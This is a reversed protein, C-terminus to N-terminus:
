QEDAMVMPVSLEVETMAHVRYLNPQAREVYTVTPVRWTDGPGIDSVWFQRRGDGDLDAFVEDLPNEAGEVTFASGARAVIRLGVSRDENYLWRGQHQGGDVRGLKALTLTGAADDTAEVYGMQVLMLTDGFGVTTQGDAVAVDVITYSTRQLENGLIMVRDLYAEPVPLEGDLVIENAEHDVSVVLGAPSPPTRLVFDGCRLETGNVLCARAVEGDALTVVAFEGTASLEADGADWACAASADLSSHILDEGRSGSGDGAHRIALGVAHEVATLAGLRRVGQVRAPGQHPESVTIYTSSLDSAESEDAPLSNRALVYQLTPPHSPKLEAEADALIIEGASREPMFMTLALDTEPDRWTASWAGDPSM